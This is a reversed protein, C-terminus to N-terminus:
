ETDRGLVYVPTHLIQATFADPHPDSTADPNNRATRLLVRNTLGESGEPTLMPQYPQSNQFPVGYVDGASAERLIENQRFQLDQSQYLAIEEAAPISASFNSYTRTSASPSTYWDIIGSRGSALAGGAALVSDVGSVVTTGDITVTWTGTARATLAIDATLNPLGSPGTQGIVSATGAVVKYVYVRKDVPLFVAALFNDNDTLRAIVGMLVGAATATLTVAVAVDTPTGSGLVVGRSYRIDTATDSTATREVANNSAAQFDTADSVGGMSAWTHGSTSTDDTMAGSTASFNDFMSLTSSSSSVARVDGIGNEMPVFYLDVIRLTNGATGSTKAEVLGKFRQTGTPATGIHVQGLDVLSYDAVAQPIAWDNTDYGGDGVTWKLRVRSKYLDTTAANDYVRAWVSYSGILSLNGTDCITTETSYLSATVYGPVGATNTTIVYSGGTLGSNDVVLPNVNCGALTGGFTITGATGPLPGASVTVGGSGINPITEIYTDLASTGSTYVIPSATASVADLSLAYSGATITGTQSITQVENVHAVISGSYGATGMSPGRLILSSGSVYDRGQIGYIAFRQDSVTGGTIKVRAPGAAKGNDSAAGAVEYGNLAMFPVAPLTDVGAPVLAVASVIQAPDFDSGSMVMHHRLNELAGPDLLLKPGGMVLAHLDGAPEGYFDGRVIAIWRESEVPAHTDSIWFRLGQVIAWTQWTNWFLDADHVDPAPLEAYPFQYGFHVARAFCDDPKAPLNGAIHRGPSEAM